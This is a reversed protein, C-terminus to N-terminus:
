GGDAGRVVGSSKLACGVRNPRARSIAKRDTQGDTRRDTQRDFEHDVGLRNLM